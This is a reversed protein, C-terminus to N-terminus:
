PLNKWIEAALFLNIWGLLLLVTLRMGWGARRHRRATSTNKRHQRQEDAKRAGAM